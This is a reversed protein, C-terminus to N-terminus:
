LILEQRLRFEYESTVIETYGCVLCLYPQIALTVDYRESSTHEISELGDIPVMDSDCRLCKRPNSITTNQMAIWM